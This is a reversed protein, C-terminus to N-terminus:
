LLETYRWWVLSSCISESRVISGDFPRGIGFLLKSRMAKKRPVHRMHNSRWVNPANSIGQGSRSIKRFHQNKLFSAKWDLEVDIRWKLRILHNIERWGGDTVISVKRSRRDDSWIESLMITRSWHYDQHSWASWIVPRSTTQTDNLEPRKSNRVERVCKPVRTSRQVGIALVQDGSRSLADETWPDVRSFHDAYRPMTKEFVPLLITEFVSYYEFASDRSLEVFAWRYKVLEAESQRWCLPLSM